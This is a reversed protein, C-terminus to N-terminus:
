ARSSQTSGDGAGLERPWVLHGRLGTTLLLPLGGGERHGACLLSARPVLRPGFM